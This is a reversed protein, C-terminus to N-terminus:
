GDKDRGKNLANWYWEAYNGVPAYSPVSYVGWHIFIGFKADTYWAPTPRSDISEWTSQYPAQASAGVAAALCAAVSLFSAFRNVNEREHARARLGPAAEM